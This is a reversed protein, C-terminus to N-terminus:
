AHPTKEIPTIKKLIPKCPRKSKKKIYENVYSNIEEKTMDTNIKGEKLLMDKIKTKNKILPSSFNKCPTPSYTSPTSTTDAKATDISDTSQQSQCSIIAVSLVIPFFIKIVMAKM